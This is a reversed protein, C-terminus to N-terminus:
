VDDTWPDEENVPSERPEEVRKSWIGDLPCSANCCYEGGCYPCWSQRERLKDLLMTLIEGPFLPLKVREGDIDVYRSM